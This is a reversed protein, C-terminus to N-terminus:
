PIHASLYQQGGLLGTAVGIGNATIPNAFGVYDSPSTSGPPLGGNGAGSNGAGWLPSFGAPIFGWFSAEGGASDEGASWSPDPERNAEAAPGTKDSGGLFRPSSEQGFLASPGSAAALPPGETGWSEQGFMAFLASPGSAAALPPGETGWSEQGFMALLASPGSAAAFPPGETPDEMTVSTGWSGDPSLAFTDNSFNQTPDFQLHYTQSGETITLVNNAAMAVMNTASAPLSGINITDGPSFGEITGHFAGADNLTVSANQGFALTQGAAVAAQLTLSSGATVQLTGTGAVSGYVLLTGNSAAITGDNTISALTVTANGGGVGSLTGAGDLIGGAAVQVASARALAEPGGLTVTGASGIALTGTMAFLGTDAASEGVTVTGTGGSQGVTTNGDVELLAGTTISIQGSGGAGVILSGTNFVMTSNNVTALAVGVTVNGADSVALTGTGGSGVTLTSSSADANAVLLDGGSLSVTGTSGANAGITADFATAQGTIGNAAGDITLSGTGADGVTLSGATSWEGGNVVVTGRGGAAQGIDAGGDSASAAVGLLQLTGSGAAGIVASGAATIEELDLVAGASGANEGIVLADTTSGGTLDLAGGMVTMQGYGAVGVAATGVATLQAGGALTLAGGSDVSLATGGSLGRASVSGTLTLTGADTIEAVAGDGTVTEVGPGFSAIDAGGPAGTARGGNVTWQTPDGFSGTASSGWAYVAGASDNTVGITAPASTGAYDSVSITISDTGAAAGQYTLTQLSREVADITGTLTLSQPSNQTLTADDASTGAALTGSGATITVDITTDTPSSPPFPTQLVIDPVPVAIGPAAELTAPAVVGPAEGSSPAAFTITTAAGSGSGSVTAEPQLGALNGSLAFSLPTGGNAPTVALVGSSYSAASADVGDLVLSSAFSFGTITGAFTGPAQMVLTTPSYPGNSLEAMTPASFVITQGAGVANGLTLAAGADIVIQGAGSLPAAVDLEALGLTQDAVAEITGDNAMAQATLTGDGSITGGSAIDIAPAGLAGTMRVDGQGWVNLTGGISLDATSYADPSLAALLTATGGASTATGGVDLNGAISVSTDVGAVVATGATAPQDAIDIDGAGADGVAVSDIDGVGADGVAVSSGGSLMVVADVIVAGVAVTGAVTIPAPSASFRITGGAPPPAAPPMAPNSIPSTSVTAASAIVGVTQTASDGAGDIATIKLTDTGSAVQDALSALITNVAALSGSFTLTTDALLQRNDTAMLRNGAASTVTVTYNSEAKASELLVANTGTLPITGPASTVVSPAIFGLAAGDDPAGTVPAVGNALITALNAISSPSKSEFGQLIPTEWLEISGADAAAGNSIVNSWNAYPGLNAPYDTQYSAPVTAPNLAADATIQAYLFLAWSPLPNNLAHNSAQVVRSSNEAQQLVALSFNPDPAANNANELRFVSMTYDLPTTTWASYDAIGARLTLEEAADNYGGAQLMPVQPMYVQSFPEDTASAGATNSIGRIIPNNDYTAALQNQFSTWANIYDATWFRGITEPGTDGPDITGPGTVTLPPGDISKAWDPATYGGWVRLEIGVDTGYLANYFQVANIASDIASTDLPGNETPELQAWTVNLVIGGFSGPYPYLNWIDFSPLVGPQDYFSPDGMDMLGTLPPKADGNSGSM